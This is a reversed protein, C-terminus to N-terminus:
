AKKPNYIKKGAGILLFAPLEVRFKKKTETAM